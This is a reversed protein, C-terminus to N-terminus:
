KNKLGWSIDPNTFDIDKGKLKSVSDLIGLGHIDDYTIRGAECIIYGLQNADKDTLLTIAAFPDIESFNPENEFFEYAKKLITRKIDHNMKLYVENLMFERTKEFREKILGEKFEVKNKRISEEILSEIVCYNRREQNEGLELIFDPLRNEDLYGYRIADNIDSFTYAIKDSFMVVSYEEPVGVTTKLEIKGTRSHYIIGELTEYSLNLGKGDMREIKQAVVVGAINHLFPKGLIESLVEEGLHGYPAHGIDHAAAIAQCLSTNLGLKESITTAVGMVELTHTARSRVYSNKPATIVQTKDTLRRFSKSHFIRVLDELFPNEIIVRYDEKFKRGLSDKHNFAKM